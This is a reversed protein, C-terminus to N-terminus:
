SERLAETPEIRLGRLTPRLCALSAVLLVAVSVVSLLGPVSSVAFESQDVMISLLGWGAIWGLVIGAVLQQFARKAIAAVINRAGAGLATRIGIERTRQSVTFSVLAYLGTSSLIVGTTSLLVIFLTILTSQTRIREVVERLTLPDRVM